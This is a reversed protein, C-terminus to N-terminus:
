QPRCRPRLAAGRDRADLGCGADPRVLPAQHGEHGRHEGRELGAAAHAVHAGEGQDRRLDKRVQVDRLPDDEEDRGEPEPRGQPADGAPAQEDRDQEGQRQEDDHFGDGDARPSVADNREGPQGHRRGARGRHGDTPRHRGRREVRALRLPEERQARRRRDHPVGEAREGRSGDRADAAGLREDRGLADQEDDGRQDDAPDRGASRRRSPTWGRRGRSGHERVDADPKVLDAAGREQRPDRDRVHEERDQEHRDGNREPTRRRRRDRVLRFPGAGHPHDRGHHGGRRPSGTRRETRSRM